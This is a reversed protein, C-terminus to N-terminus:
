IGASGGRSALFRALLRGLPWDTRLLLYDIRHTRCSRRLREVFGEFERLYATRVVDADVTWDGGNELGRFEVMEHFPFVVEAPDLVQVVIVEHRRRLERLGITVRELDDFFDSIVVAIGRRTWRRALEGFARRADTRCRPPEGALLDCVARLYGAGGGPRVSGRIQADFATAGILDGQQLVVFALAAAVRRAYQWKSMPANPGQYAMSESVDLALYCTLNTEEEFQKLYLKESRAYVKWDLYRPDDGPVYERHEAFEISFGRYPGRHLGSMSGEATRRSRLRLGRLEASVTPDLDDPMQAM